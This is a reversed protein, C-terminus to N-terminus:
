GNNPDTVAASILNYREFASAADEAKDELRFTVPSSNMIDCVKRDPANVLIDTLMLEGLLRNDSDTIFLKDTGEPIKGKRRLFRQVVGLRIDSRVTIFNFDMVRAVGDVDNKIINLLDSRQKPTLSTLLRGTLDRPLFRALWAQDDIDLPAIAQLIDKDTMPETLSEWVNESAEVLVRGRHEAPVMQWLAQRADEPLSELIDAIDAAHLNDLDTTLQKCLPGLQPDTLCTKAPYKLLGTILAPNNLLGTIINQRKQQLTRTHPVPM